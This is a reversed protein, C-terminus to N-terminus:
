FPNKCSRTAFCATHTLPLKPAYARALPGSARTGVARRPALRTELVARGFLQFFAATCCKNLHSRPRGSAPRRGGTGRPRGPEDRPRWRFSASGVRRASSTDSYAARDRPHRQRGDRREADAVPHLRQATLAAMRRAPRSRRRLVFGTTSPCSTGRARLAAPWPGGRFSRLRRRSSNAAAGDVRM